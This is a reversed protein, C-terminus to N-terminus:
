AGLDGEKGDGSGVSEAGVGSEARIYAADDGATADATKTVVASFRRFTWESGGRHEAVFGLEVMLETFDVWRVSGKHDSTANPFLLRLTALSRHKKPLPLVPPLWAGAEEAAAAAAPGGLSLAQMDEKLGQEEEEDRVSTEEKKEEQSTAGTKKNGKSKGKKAGRPTEPVGAQNQAHHPISTTFVPGPLKAKEVKSLIYARERAIASLYEPSKDYSLLALMARKDDDNLGGSFHTRSYSKRGEEWVKALSARQPMMVTNDTTNGMGVGEAKQLWGADRRGTPMKFVNLDKVTSGLPGRSFEKEHEASSREGLRLIRWGFSDRYTPIESKTLHKYSLSPRHMQFATLIRRLAAFDSFRSYTMSDLKAAEEKSCTALHTDLSLLAAHVNSDHNAFDPHNTLTFICWVIHKKKYLDDPVLEKGNKLSLIDTKGDSYETNFRWMPRWAPSIYALERLHRAKKRIATNTYHLLGGVAAEYQKPMPKGPGIDQQHAEYQILVYELEDTIIQWDLAQTVSYRVIRDALCNLTKKPDIRAGPVKTRNNENWYSAISHFYSPDTQLLWLHDQAEAGKETTLELLTKITSSNFPPPPAVPENYYSLGLERGSKGLDMPQKLASQDLGLSQEHVPKPDPDPAPMDITMAAVFDHLFKALDLQAELILLAWSVPYDDGREVAFETGPQWNGYQAGHMTIVGLSTQEKFAGACWGTLIQMYDFPVFDAPRHTTRNNLLRLIKTGDKSLTEVNIYPLLLPERYREEKPRERIRDDRHLKIVIDLMKDENELMQPRLECLIKGRKYSGKKLWRRQIADGHLSVASKAAELHEGMEKCLRQATNKAQLPRIVERGIHGLDQGGHRIFDLLCQYCNCCHKSKRREDLRDLERLSAADLDAEAEARLRAAAM